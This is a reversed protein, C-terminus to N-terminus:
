ARGMSAYIVARVGGAKESGLLSAFDFSAGMQAIAGVTERRVDADGSGLLPIVSDRLTPRELRGLARVALRQIRVEPSKLGSLIVSVDAARSHEAALIAHETPAQLLLLLPLLLM